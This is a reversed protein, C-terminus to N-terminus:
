GRYGDSYQGHDLQDHLVDVQAVISGVISSSMDQAWDVYEGWECTQAKELFILPSPFGFKTEFPVRRYTELRSSSMMEIVTLLRRTAEYSTDVWRRTERRSAGVNLGSAALIQRCHNRMAFREPFPPREPVPIGEKTLQGIALLLTNSLINMGEIALDLSAQEPARKRCNPM